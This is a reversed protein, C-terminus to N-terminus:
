LLLCDRGVVHSLLLTTSGVILMSQSLAVPIATATAAATAVLLWRIWLWSCCALMWIVGGRRVLVEFVPVVAVSMTAVNVVLVGAPRAGFRARHVIWVCCPGVHHVPQGCPEVLHNQRRGRAARRVDQVLLTRGGRCSPLLRRGGDVEGGKHWLHHRGCGVVLHMVHPLLKSRRRRLKGLRSRGCGCWRRACNHHGEVCQVRLRMGESLVHEGILLLKDRFISYINEMRGDAGRCILM